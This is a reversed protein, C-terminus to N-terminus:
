LWAIARAPDLSACRTAATVDRKMQAVLADIRPYRRQDRIWDLLEVRLTRGYLDGDFGILHGEVQRMEDGFTPLTGISLAVSWTRGDVECRAAYVGDAPVLQGGCRLNATPFGLTRGRRFGEVVPGELVYPRGLCIAAERVRGGSLLWRILSSSVQVVSLDLLAVEVGEVVDLRVNGDTAWQRLREITGARGRGFSFTHGEVLHGVRVQDRLIAWFEEASLNLVESVPPLIVLEDVGAGDLMAQKIAPPSLRPPALHPKIATLPHPEFTVVVAPLGAADAAQRLHQLIRQHGLHLGDFNGVSM